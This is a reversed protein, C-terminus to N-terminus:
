DSLERPRSENDIAWTGTHFGWAVGFTNEYFHWYAVKDDKFRLHAAWPGTVRRGTSAATFEFRGLIVVDSGDAVVHDIPMGHVEFNRSWQALFAQVGEIGKHLGVWPIAATTAPHDADIVIYEVDPTMWDSLEIEGTSLATFFDRARQRYHETEAIRVDTVADTM